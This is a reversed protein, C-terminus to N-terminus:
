LVPVPLGNAPLLSTVGTTLQAVQRSSRVHSDDQGPLLANGIGFSTKMVHKPKRNERSGSHPDARLM